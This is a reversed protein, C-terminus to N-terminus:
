VFVAVFTDFSAAFIPANRGNEPARLMKLVLIATVAEATAVSRVALVNVHEPDGMPRELNPLSSTAFADPLVSM